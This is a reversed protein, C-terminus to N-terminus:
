RAARTLTLACTQGVDLVRMTRGAGLWLTCCLALDVIEDDRFQARLRQWFADDERLGTHDLAYREAYEAALRLARQPLGRM